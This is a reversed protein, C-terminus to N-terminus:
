QNTQNTIVNVWMPFNTSFTFNNDIGGTTNTIGTLVYNSPSSSNTNATGHVYWNVTALTVFINSDPNGADPKFRIYDTFDLHLATEGQCPIRPCDIMRVINNSEGPPANAVVPILAPLNSFNQNFYSLQEIRGGKM